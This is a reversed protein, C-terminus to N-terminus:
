LALALHHRLAQLQPHQGCLEESESEPQPESEPEPQPELEPEPEPEPEPAPQRPRSRSRQVTTWEGGDDDGHGENGGQRKQRKKDAELQDNMEEHTAVAAAVACQMVEVNRGQQAGDGGSSQMEASLVEYSGWGDCIIAIAANEAEGHLNATGLQQRARGCALVVANELQSAATVGGSKAPLVGHASFVLQVDIIKPLIETM